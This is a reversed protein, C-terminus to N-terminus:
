TIETMPLITAYVYDTTKISTMEPARSKRVRIIERRRFCGGNIQVESVGRMGGQFRMGNMRGYRKEILLGRRDQCKRSVAGRLSVLVEGCIKGLCLISYAPSM